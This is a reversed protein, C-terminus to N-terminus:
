PCTASARKPVHPVNQCMKARANRNSEQQKGITKEYMLTDLLKLQHIGKNDASIKLLNDSAGTSIQLVLILFVQFQLNKLSQSLTSGTQIIYYTTHQIYYIYLSMYPYMCLNQLYYNTRYITTTCIVITSVINENNLAKCM